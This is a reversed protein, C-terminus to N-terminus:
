FDARPRGGLPWLGHPALIAILGAAGALWEGLGVNHDLNDSGFRRGLQVVVWATAGLLVV